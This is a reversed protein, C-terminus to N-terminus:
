SRGGTQLLETVIAPASMLIVHKRLLNNMVEVGRMDIHELHSCDLHVVKRNRIYSRCERDLLVAWQGTIKGELKLLMDSGSERVKTIKLM